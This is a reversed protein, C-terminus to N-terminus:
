PHVRDQAWRALLERNLKANHRIDTPLPGPYKIIREITTTIRHRHALGELERQLRHWPLGDQEPEVVVVPEQEGPAGVGVLACRYVSPHANFVGECPVTYLDGGAARVRHSKRGCMWLRGQEDLRGLDGMRHWLEEGDPIKALATQEPRGFYSETVVPGKVCVEGIVGTPVCLSESWAEIASDSVAIVRVENLECLSGVLVGGGDDTIPSVADLDDSGVHAVPLSETAGYNTFLQAGAPLMAVVRRMVDPRMPAGASLIRRLGPLKTGHREGHRGFTDLLGPSGFMNTVGHAEIAALLRAPDAQAPKRFDMEPIVATMGLAPDFLAFLPFTPLDVEDDGFRYIDRLARVQADFNAHTYVAGKPIGTSGSTFLIAATEGDEPEIPSFPAEPAGDRLGRLTHGGWLWRRGATVLTRVARFPGPSLMRLVHALPVGIFAEPEVEDLCKLLPGRGIGPDIMVLTAGVKFLAFVLAFFELSPTVMLATRTGRTIGAAVLGHAYRDSEADLEAFSYGRWRSEGEAGRGDAVIVAAKDPLRAAM